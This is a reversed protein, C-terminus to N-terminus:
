GDCLYSASSSFWGDAGMADIAKGPRFAENDEGKMRGSFAGAREQFLCM